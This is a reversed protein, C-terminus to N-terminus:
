ETTLSGRLWENANLGGSHGFDKRIHSQHIKVGFDKSVGAAILTNKVIVSLAEGLTTHDATESILKNSIESLVAEEGCFTIKLDLTSEDM